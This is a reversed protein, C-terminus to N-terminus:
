ILSTVEDTLKERSFNKAVFVRVFGYLYIALYISRCLFVTALVRRWGISVISMLGGSM